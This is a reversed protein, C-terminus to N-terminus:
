ILTQSLKQVDNMFLKTNSLLRPVTSCESWNKSVEKKKRAAEEAEENYKMQMKQRAEEVKRRRVDM